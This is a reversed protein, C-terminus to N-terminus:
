FNNTNVGNNALWNNDLQGFKPNNNHVWHNLLRIMSHNIPAVAGSFTFLNQM